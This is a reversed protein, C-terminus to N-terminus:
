LFLVFFVNSITNIDWQYILFYLSGMFLILAMTFAIGATIKVMSNSFGLGMDWILHRIGNSFHYCISWLLVGGVAQLLFVMYPDLMQLYPSLTPDILYCMRILPWVMTMIFSLALVGGSMRHFISFLATIQPEYVTLHPSLVKRAM